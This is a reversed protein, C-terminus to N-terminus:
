SGAPPDRREKLAKVAADVVERADPDGSAAKERAIAEARTYIARAPETSGTAALAEGLVMLNDANDPCIADAKRAHELAADQDGPGAPWGPARLLVLGLVRHGGANDLRPDVAIVEELLSVIKSLADSATTRRERAQLGLSLALRYKCALNVPARRLCWQCAQVGETALTARRPADATHEILWASSRAAGLLGEVRTDDARAASLFQEYSSGVARADPRRAFNAEAQTLVRDVDAPKLTEAALRASPTGLATVLPPERLAPACALLAAGAFWTLVLATRTTM